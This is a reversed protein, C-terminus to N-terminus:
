PVPELDITGTSIGDVRRSRAVYTGTMRKGDRAIQNIGVLYNVTNKAMNKAYYTMFEHEQVRGQIEYELKEPAHTTLTGTVICGRQRLKVTIKYTM